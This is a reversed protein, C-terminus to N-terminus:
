LPRIPGVITDGSRLVSFECGPYVLAEKGVSFYLRNLKYQLIDCELQQANAPPHIASFTLVAAVAVVSGRFKLFM